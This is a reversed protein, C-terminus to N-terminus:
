IGNKIEDLKKAEEKPVDFKQTLTTISALRLEVETQWKGEENRYLSLKTIKRKKIKQRFDRSDVTSRVAKKAAEFTAETDPGLQYVQLQKRVLSTRGPRVKRSWSPDTKESDTGKTAKSEPPNGPDRFSM